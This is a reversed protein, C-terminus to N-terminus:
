CRHACSRNHAHTFVCIHQKNWFGAQEKGLSSPHVIDPFGGDELKTRSRMSPPFNGASSNGARHAAHMAAAPTGLGPAAPIPSRPQHASPPLHPGTSPARGWPRCRRFCSPGRGQTCVPGLGAGGFYVSRQLFDQGRAASPVKGKAEAFPSCTVRLGLLQRAAM